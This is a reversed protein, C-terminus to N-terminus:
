LVICAAVTLNSHEDILIARGNGAVKQFPDLYVPVATKFMVRGIDNFHLEKSSTDVKLDMVSIRHEVDKVLVHTVFSNSQLIYRKGPMLIDSESFWTLMMTVSHSPDIKDEECVMLDGRKLEVDTSLQLTVSRHKEAVDMRKDGSKISTIESIDGPVIRIKERESIKGSLVIGSYFKIGAEDKTVHQIRLRFPSKHEVLRIDELFSMLTEGTYWPMNVSSEVVNDGQLASVPIFQHEFSFQFDLDSFQKVVKDFVSKDFGTRDMKNIAIAVHRIGMMSLLMAHRKTQETVGNLADILIIAADSNSAATVLNRTFEFHGPADAIIYKRKSSSFYRYAVDITIGQEREAKLGDTLKSLDYQSSGDRLLSGLQDLYISGHDYLLRGILTSKGDDVSGATLFRLIDM